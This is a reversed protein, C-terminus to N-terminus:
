RQRKKKRKLFAVQESNYEEKERESTQVGRSGIFQTQQQKKEEVVVVVYYVGGLHDDIKASPLLVTERYIRVCLSPNVLLAFWTVPFLSTTPSGDKEEKEKRKSKDYDIWPSLLPFYLFLSKDPSCWIEHRFNISNFCLATSLTMNDVVLRAHKRRIYCCWPHQENKKERTPMLNWLIVIGDHIIRTHRWSYHFEM